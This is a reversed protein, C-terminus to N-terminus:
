PLNREMYKSKGRGSIKSWYDMSLKRYSKNLLGMQPSVILRVVSCVVVIFAFPNHRYFLMNM